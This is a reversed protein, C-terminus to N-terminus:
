RTWCLYQVFTKATNIDTLSESLPPNEYMRLMIQLICDIKLNYVCEDEEKLTEMSDENDTNESVQLSETVSTNTQDSLIENPPDIINNTNSCDLINGIDLIVSRLKATTKPEEVVTRTSTTPLPSTKSVMGSEEKGCEHSIRNSAIHNNLLGVLCPM